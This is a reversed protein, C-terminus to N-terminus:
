PSGYQGSDRLFGFYGLIGVGPVEYRGPITRFSNEDHALDFNRTQHRILGRSALNRKKGKPGNQFLKLYFEPYTRDDLITDISGDM